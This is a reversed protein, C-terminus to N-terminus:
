EIEIAIETKWVLGKLNDKLLNKIASPTKYITKIEHTEIELSKISNAITNIEYDSWTGIGFGLDATDKQKLNFVISDGTIEQYPAFDNIADPKVIFKVKSDNMTNNVFIIYHPPDCSTLLTATLLILAFRLKM